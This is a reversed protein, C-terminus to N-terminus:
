HSYRPTDSRRLQDSPAMSVATNSSSPSPPPLSKVDLLSQGTFIIDGSSVCIEKVLADRDAVLVVPGEPMSSAAVSSSSVPSLPGLPPSSPLQYLALQQGVSIRERPAVLWKLLIATADSEPEFTIIHEAMLSLFLFFSFSFFPFIFPFIFPFNFSLQFSLQLLSISNVLLYVAQFFPTIKEDVKKLQRM